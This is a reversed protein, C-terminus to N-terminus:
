CSISFRLLCCSIFSCFCVLRGWLFSRPRSINMSRQSNMLYCTLHTQGGNQLQSKSTNSLMPSTAFWQGYEKSSSLPEDGLSFATQWIEGAGYGKHIVMPLDGSKVAIDAGKEVQGIFVPIQQFAPLAPTVQFFKTDAAAEKDPKMPLVQYLSGYSGAANPEAGAILKGGNQIWNLIAQQQPKKLKSIAFEDILIYDLSDLGLEDEPVMESTLVIPEIQNTLAM